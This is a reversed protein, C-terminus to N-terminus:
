SAAEAGRKQMKRQVIRKKLTGMRDIMLVGDLHDLEHQIAVALLGDAAIEFTAGDRGRARVRVREARKIDESIGPFSLCGEPGTQQGEQRVIEPNIFVLLNSPENDAAVDVLFIRHPEGIQTAALGVGPAAYMTEAMDDILKVIEPTVDGVPQAKQRLRPDPYHLITRIAM